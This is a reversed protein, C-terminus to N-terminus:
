LIPRLRGENDVKQNTILQYLAEIDKAEERDPCVQLIDYSLVARGQSKHRSMRSPIHQTIGVYGCDLIYVYTEESKGRYYKELCRLREEEKYRTRHVRANKRRRCKESCYVSGKRRHNFEDGCEKCKKM